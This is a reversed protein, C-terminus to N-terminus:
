GSDRSNMGVKKAVKRQNVSSKQRDDEIEDRLAVSLSLAGTWVTNFLVYSEKKNKHSDLQLVLVAPLTAAPLDLSCLSLYPIKIRIGPAAVPLLHPRYNCHM